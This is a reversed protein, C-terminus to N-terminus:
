EAAAFEARAQDAWEEMEPAAFVKEVYTQAMGDDGYCALDAVYTRLGPAVPAYM